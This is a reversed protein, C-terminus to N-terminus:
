YAKGSPLRSLQLVFHSSVCERHGRVCVCAYVCVSYQYSYHCIYQQQSVQHCAVASHGSSLSTGTLVLAPTTVQHTSVLRLALDCKLHVSMLIQSTLCIGRACVYM